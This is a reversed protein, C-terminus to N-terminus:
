KSRLLPIRYSLGISGSLSLGSEPVYRFTPPHYRNWKLYDIEISVYALLNKLFFHYYKIQTGTKWLFLKDFDYAPFGQPPTPCSTCTTEYIEGTQFSEFRYYHQLLIFKHFSPGLYLEDRKFSFLRFNLETGLGLFHDKMTRIYNSNETTYHHIYSYQANLSFELWKYNFSGTFKTGVPKPAQLANLYSYGLSLRLDLSDKQSFALIPFTWCFMILVFTRM